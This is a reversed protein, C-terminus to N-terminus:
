SLNKYNRSMREPKERGNGDERERERRREGTGLKERIQKRKM